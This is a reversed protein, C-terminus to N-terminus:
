KGILQKIHSLATKRTTGGSIYYSWSQKGNDWIAGYVKNDTIRLTVSTKGVKVQKEVDYIEWDGSIDDPTDGKRVCIENKGNSYNVEVIGKMAMINTVTYKGISDPAKFSVGAAKSAKAVTEYESWPNGMYDSGGAEEEEAKLDEDTQGLSLREIDVLSAKGTLSKNVSVLSFYYPADPYVVRSRCLVLYNTGSVIQSGLYSLPTYEVGVLERLAKDFVKKVDKNSGIATKGTNATYGGMLQKGILTRFGTITANGKLDEYIYMLRIEPDANKGDPTARCLICYNTGAVVQSALFALATFSTGSYGKVAKKFANKAAPNRSMAVSGENVTWGGVVSVYQKGASAETDDTGKAAAAPFTIGTMAASVALAAAIVRIRNKM